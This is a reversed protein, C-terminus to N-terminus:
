RFPPMFANSLNDELVIEFDFLKVNLFPTSCSTSEAWRHVLHLFCSAEVQFQLIVPTVSRAQKDGVWALNLMGGVKCNALNRVALSVCLEHNFRFFFLFITHFAHAWLAQSSSSTVSASPPQAEGGWGGGEGWVLSWLQVGDWLRESTVQTYVFVCVCLSLFVVVFLWLYSVRLNSFLYHM